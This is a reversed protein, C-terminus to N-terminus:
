ALGYEELDADTAWEWHGSVNAYFNDREEEALEETWDDDGYETFGLSTDGEWLAAHEQAMDNVMMDIDGRDYNDPVVIVGEDGCGCYGVDLYYKIRRM